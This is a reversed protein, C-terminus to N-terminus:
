LSFLSLSFPIYIMDGIWFKYLYDSFILMIVLLPICILWIRELKNIMSKMWKYDERIYADTFASWFPTLIITIFMTLVNFYKFAINYQTVVEPGEIRSLIINIFQFIFLM